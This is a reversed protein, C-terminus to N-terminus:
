NLQLHFADLRVMVALKSKVNNAALTWGAPVTLPGTQCGTAAETAMTDDLTAFRMGDVNVFNTIASQATVACFNPCAPENEWVFTGHLVFCILLAVAVPKWM